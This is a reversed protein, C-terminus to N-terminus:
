KEEAQRRYESLSCCRVWCAFSLVSCAAFFTQAFHRTQPTNCGLPTYRVWYPSDQGGSRETGEVVGAPSQAPHVELYEDDGQGHHTSDDYDGEEDAEEAAALTLVKPGLPKFSLHLFLGALCLAFLVFPSCLHFLSM